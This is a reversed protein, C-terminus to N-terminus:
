RRCEFPRLFFYVLSLAGTSHSLPLTRLPHSYKPIGPLSSSCAPLPPFTEYLFGPSAPCPLPRTVYFAKGNTWMYVGTCKVGVLHRKFHFVPQIISIFHAPPVSQSPSSTNPARVQPLSKPPVTARAQRVCVEFFLSLVARPGLCQFPVDDGAAESTTDCCSFGDYNSCIMYLPIRRPQEDLPIKGAPYIRRSRQAGSAPPLLHILCCRMFTSVRSSLYASSHTPPFPVNELWTLGANGVFVPLIHILYSHGTLPNPADVFSLNTFSTTRLSFVIPAM